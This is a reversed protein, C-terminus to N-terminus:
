MGAAPRSELDFIRYRWRRYALFAAMLLAAVAVGVLLALVIQGGVLLDGALLAVGLGAVIGNIFAVM